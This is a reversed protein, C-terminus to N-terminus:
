VFLKLSLLKRKQHVRVGKQGGQWARLLVNIKPITLATPEDMALVVSVPVYM